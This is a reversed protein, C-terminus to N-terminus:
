NNKTESEKSQIMVDYVQKVDVCQGISQDLPKDVRKHLECARGLIFQIALGYFAVFQEMVLLRKLSDVLQRSFEESHVIIRVLAQTVRMSEDYICVRFGDSRDQIKVPCRNNMTVQDCQTTVGLHSISKM